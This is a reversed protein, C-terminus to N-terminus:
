NELAGYPAEKSTRVESMASMLHEKCSIASRLNQQLNPM